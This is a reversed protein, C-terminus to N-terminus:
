SGGDEENDYLEALEAGACDATEKPTLADREERCPVGTGEDSESGGSPPWEPGGPPGASPYGEDGANM